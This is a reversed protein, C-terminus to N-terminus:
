AGGTHQRYFDAPEQRESGASHEHTHPQLYDSMSSAMAQEKDTDAVNTEWIAKNNAEPSEADADRFRSKLRLCTFTRPM